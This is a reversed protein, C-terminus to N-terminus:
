IWGRPFSNIQLVTTYSDLGQMAVTTVLDLKDQSRMIFSEHEQPAKYNRVDSLSFLEIVIEYCSYM